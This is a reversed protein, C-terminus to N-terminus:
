KRIIATAEIEVLFDERVLRSVQVATSTPPSKINVYKDRIDRFTQIQSIDTFYCGLKVVDSMTGGAEEVISKLNLFIQEVQKGFDSKGVVNGQKDLSVLGSIIIMKSNGLDVQATTSYGKPIAVSNPNVFKVLAENNQGYGVAAYMFFLSFFIHHKMRRNGAIKICSLTRIIFSALVAELYFGVFM